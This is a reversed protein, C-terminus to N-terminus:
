WKYVVRIARRNILDDYAKPADTFPVITTPIGKPKVQGSSILALAEVLDPHDCDRSVILDPEIVYMPRYTIVIPDAYSGLLLFRGTRPFPPQWPKAPLLQITSDVTSAVGTVDVAVTLENNSYRKVMDKANERSANIVHDVGAQKSAELREDITDIAIVLAGRAKAVQAALHGIIGQGVIAVKDDSTVKARKIGHLAIACTKIYLASVIDTNEPISILRGADSIAYEVQGGWMSGFPGTFDSQGVFVKTGKALAVGEGIDVVEGINEYGPVCPFADPSQKGALV